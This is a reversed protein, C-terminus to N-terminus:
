EARPPAIVQMALGTPVIPAAISRAVLEDLAAAQDRWDL